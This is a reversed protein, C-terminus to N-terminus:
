ARRPRPKQFEALLDADGDAPRTPKDDGPDDATPRVGDDELWDLFKECTVPKCGRRRASDKVRSDNSVVWVTKPQSVQHILGEILDDATQRYSFTVILGRHTSSGLDRAANQADFVLRVTARRATVAPREALWDLFRVRAADFGTRSAGAPVAGVAHMLNYGDVFVTM